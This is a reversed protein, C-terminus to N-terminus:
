AVPPRRALDGHRNGWQAIALDVIRGHEIVLDLDQLPGSPTVVSGGIMLTAAIGIVSLTPVMANRM